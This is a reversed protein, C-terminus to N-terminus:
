GHLLARILEPDGQASPHSAYPRILERYAPYRAIFREALQRGKALDKTELAHLVLQRSMESAEEYCRCRRYIDELRELLEADDPRMKLKSLLDVTAQEPMGLRVYLERRIERLSSRDCLSPDEARLIDVLHGVADSYDPRLHLAEVFFDRAAATEGREMQISGMRVLTEPAQPDKAGHQLAFLKELVRLDKPHEELFDKCLALAASRDEEVELKAALNMLKSSQEAAQALQTRAKTLKSYLVRDTPNMEGLQSLLRIAAAHEDRRELVRVLRLLVARADRAEGRSSLYAAYGQMLVQSEPRAESIKEWLTKNLEPDRCKELTAVLKKEVLKGQDANDLRDYLHTLKLMVDTYVSPSLKSGEAEGVRGSRDDRLRDKYFSLLNSMAERIGDHPKLTYIHHLKQLVDMQLGSLEDEGGALAQLAEPSTTPDEFVAELKWALFHLQEEVQKRFNSHDFLSVNLLQNFENLADMWQNEALANMAKWYHTDALDRDAVQKATRAENGLDSMTGQALGQLVELVETMQGPRETPDYRLMKVILANLEPPIDIDRDAPEIISLDLEAQAILITTLSDNPLAREGTLLEYFLLGLSYVDSREDVPKGQNQEPSNYCLSGLVVGMTTKILSAETYAVGFDILKIVNDKSLMVNQPKIDRHIIGRSHAFSLAYTVDLLMSLAMDLPIRGLDKLLQSLDQGRIFELAVFPEQKEFDEGSEIYRVVNPHSLTRYMEAEARFRDKLSPNGKQRRPLVKLAVKECTRVDEALYVEGMGGAKLPALIEFKGIWDGREM